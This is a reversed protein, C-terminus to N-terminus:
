ILSAIKRNVKPLNYKERVKDMELSSFGVDFYEDPDNISFYFAFLGGRKGIVYGRIEEYGDDINSEKFLEYAVNSDNM